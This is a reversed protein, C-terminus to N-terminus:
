VVVKENSWVGGMLANVTGGMLWGREEESVWAGGDTRMADWADLLTWAKGYGCQENVWPADSGWMCRQAGFTDLLLRVAPAADAYPPPQKSVRFFASTKVYVQPHRALRLLARWEQSQLNDVACFGM